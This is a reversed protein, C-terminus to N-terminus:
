PKHVLVVQYPNAPSPLGFLFVLLADRSSTLLLRRALQTVEPRLALACDSRPRAEILRLYPALARPVSGSRLAERGEPTITLPAEQVAECLQRLRATRTEMAGPVPDADARAVVEGRPRRDPGYQGVTLRDPTPTAPVAAFRAVYPDDRRVRIDFGRRRLDYALGFATGDFAQMHAVVQYLGSRGLHDRVQDSLAVVQASHDAALLRTPTSRSSSAVTGVSLVVVVAAVGAVRLTAPREARGTSPVRDPSGARRAAVSAAGFRAGAFTLSAWAFGAIVFMYRVRYGAVADGAVVPLRSLTVVGLALAVVATLLASRAVADRRWSRVLLAVITALVLAAGIAAGATLPDFGRRLEANSGIPLAWDPPIGMLHATFALARTPGLPYGPDGLGSNVVQAVNGPRHILEYGLPFSWCVLGTALACLVPARLRRGAAPEPARRAELRHWALGALTWVALGVVVPTYLIHSQVVFSGSVVLFPLAWGDGATVSWVLVLFCLLVLLPLVANSPSAFRDRGWASGLLLVVGTIALVMGSGGRRYAFVAAVALASLNVLLVGALVGWPAGAAAKVPVALAWFLMPGWHYSRVGSGGFGMTSPMGLLPTDSGFVSLSSWAVAADDGQPGWGSRIKSVVAVVLPVAGAAGFGLAV